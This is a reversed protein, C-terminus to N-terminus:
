SQVHVCTCTIIANPTAAWPAPGGRTYAPSARRRPASIIGQSVGHQLRAASEETWRSLDRSPPAIWEASETDRRVGFAGGQRAASPSLGRWKAARDASVAWHLIRDPFGHFVDLFAYKRGGARGIQQKAHASPPRLIRAAPRAFYHGIQRSFHRFIVKRTRAPQGLFLRWTRLRKAFDERAQRSIALDKSFITGEKPHFPGFSHFFTKARSM